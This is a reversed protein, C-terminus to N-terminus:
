LWIPYDALSTPKVLVETQVQSVLEPKCFVKKFTNQYGHTCTKGALVWGEPINNTEYCYDIKYQLRM